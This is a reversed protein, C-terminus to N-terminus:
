EGHRVQRALRLVGDSWARDPCPWRRFCWACEDRYESRTHMRALGAAVAIQSSTPPADPERDNM